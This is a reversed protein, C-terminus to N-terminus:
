HYNQKGEKIEHARAVAEEPELNGEKLLDLIKQLTPIEADNAGMAHVQGMVDNVEMVAQEVTLGEPTNHQQPSEM